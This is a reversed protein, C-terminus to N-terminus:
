FRCRMLGGGGHETSAARIPDTSPNEHGIGVFCDEYAMGPWIGLRRQSNALRRARGADFDALRRTCALATVETNGLKVPAVPLAALIALRGAFM